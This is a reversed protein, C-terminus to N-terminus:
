IANQYKMDSESERKKMAKAKMNISEYIIIKNFVSNKRTAQLTGVPLFDGRSRRPYGAQLEIALIVLRIGSCVCKREARQRKKFRNGNTARAM